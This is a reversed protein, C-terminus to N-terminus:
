LSVLSDFQDEDIIVEFCDECEVSYNVPGHEDYYKAIVIRHDFHKDLEM